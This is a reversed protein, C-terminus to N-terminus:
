NIKSKLRVIIDLIDIRSDLPKYSEISFKTLDIWYQDLILHTNKKDNRSTCSRHSWVGNSNTYPSILLVNENQIIPKSEIISTDDGVIYVVEFYIYNM